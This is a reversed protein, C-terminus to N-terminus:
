SEAYHLYIDANYCTRKKGDKCLFYFTKGHYAYDIGENYSGNDLVIDLVPLIHPTVTGVDLGKALIKDILAHKQAIIENMKQLVIETPNEIYAILEEIEKAKKQKYQEIQNYIVKM